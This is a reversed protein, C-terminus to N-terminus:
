WISFLLKGRRILFGKECILASRFDFTQIPIFRDVLFNQHTRQTGGFALGKVIMFTILFQDRAQTCVANWMTELLVRSKVRYVSFKIVNWVIYRTCCSCRRQIVYRKLICFSRRFLIYYFYGVSHV